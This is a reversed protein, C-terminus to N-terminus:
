DKYLHMDYPKGRAKNYEIHLSTIKRARASVQWQITSAGPVKRHDQRLQMKYEKQEAALAKLDQKMKRIEQRKEVQEETLIIEMM